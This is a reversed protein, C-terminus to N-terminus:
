ISYAYSMGNYNNNPIVGLEQLAYIDSMICVIEEMSGLVDYTVKARAPREETGFNKVNFNHIAAAMQEKIGDIDWSGVEVEKLIEKGADVIIDSIFKAFGPKPEDMKTFMISWGEDKDDKYYAGFQLLEPLKAKKALKVQKRPDGSVKNTKRAKRNRTTM